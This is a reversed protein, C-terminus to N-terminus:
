LTEVAKQAGRAAGQLGQITQSGLSGTNKMGELEALKSEMDNKMSPDVGEPNMMDMGPPRKQFWDRAKWKREYNEKIIGMNLIQGAPSMELTAINAAQNLQDQYLVKDLTTGDRDQMYAEFKWYKPLQKLKGINLFHIRVANGILEQNKEFEYVRKIDEASPDDAVMYITKKGIQNNELQAQDIEFTRYVDFPTNTSPNLRKRVPALYNDLINYTRMELLTREIRLRAFFLTGLSKIFQKSITLVETASIDRSSGIGQAINPTGIFEEIKQEILNYMAFDANSVGEHDILKHFTDKKLGQTIAGPNWMDKTYIKGSTGVGLPAEVAQQAKRVLLRLYENSFAQLTKAQATVPRGYLWDVGMPKNVFFQVDYGPYSWPLKNDPAFMPVGNIIIQYEDDPLSEYTIVEVEGNSLTGFRYEYQEGLYESRLPSGQPTVKSFNPLHGFLTKATEYDFRDYLVIFPQMNWRFPSLTLSGPFVKLGSIVRAQCQEIVQKGRRFTRTSLTEQIYVGRQTLLQDLIEMNTDDRLPDREQGYTCQAMDSIDDGLENLQRDFEDYASAIAKFEVSLMENKIADIKKESTGTNVEVETDNARPTIFTNATNENTIHDEVYSMGDFYRSRQERQEKAYEFRRIIRAYQEKEPESLNTLTLLAEIKKDNIVGPSNPQPM